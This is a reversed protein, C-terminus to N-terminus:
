LLVISWLVMFVTELLRKMIKKLSKILGFHNDKSM